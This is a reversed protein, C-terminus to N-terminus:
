VSESTASVYALYPPFYSESERVRAERPREWRSLSM